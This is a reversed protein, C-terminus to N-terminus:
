YEVLRCLDDKYHRLEVQNQCKWCIHFIVTRLLPQNCKRQLSPLLTLAIANLRWSQLLLHLQIGTGTIQCNRKYQLACISRAYFSIFTTGYSEMYGWEFFVVKSLWLSGWESHLLRSMQLIKRQLETLIQQPLTSLVFPGKLQETHRLELYPEQENKGSVYFNSWNWCM